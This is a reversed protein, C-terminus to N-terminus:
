RGSRPRDPIERLLTIAIRRNRESLPDPDIPDTAAKGSVRVVRDPSLGRAQMLRRAANAREASLEWNSRRSQNAFPKADTHGAIALDNTTQQLVPVLIDTLTGLIPAPDSAGSRFLPENSLDVIEIVLGEPTIRMTFHELLGDQGGAQIADILNEAVGLLGENELDAPSPSPSQAGDAGAHAEDGSGTAEAIEPGEKTLEIPSTMKISHTKM